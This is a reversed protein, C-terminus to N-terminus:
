TRIGAASPNGIASIMEWIDDTGLHLLRQGGLRPREPLQQRQDLAEVVVVPGTAVHQELRQGLERAFPKRGAEGLRQRPNVGVAPPRAASGACASVRQALWDRVALGYRLGM